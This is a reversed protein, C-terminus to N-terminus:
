RARGLRLWAFCPQIIRAIRDALDTFCGPKEQSDNIKFVIPEEGIRKIVLFKAHNDEFIEREYRYEFPKVTAM